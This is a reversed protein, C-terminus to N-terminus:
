RFRCPLRLLPLGVGGARRLRRRIFALVPLAAEVAGGAVDGGPPTEGEAEGISGRWFPAGDGRELHFRLVFTVREQRGAHDSGM